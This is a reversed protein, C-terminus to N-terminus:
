SRKPIPVLHLVGDVGAVLVRQGMLWAARALPEGVDGVALEEGTDAAIRAVKGSRFLLLFDGECPMPPGALAGHKLALQWRLKQGPEFAYLSTSDAVFVLGQVSAPGLRCGGTLPWNTGAALTDPRMATVTEGSGGKVVAYLTDGTAALPSTITGPATGEAQQALHPQPADKVGIRFLRQGDSVVASAGDPPLATGPIWRLQSGAMLEPQFPLMKEQGSEPDILLVRGSQVGVLVGGQYAVTGGSAQNKLAPVELWKARKSDAAVDYLLAQGGSAFGSCFWRGASLEAVDTLNWVGTGRPPTETPKDLVGAVISDRPVEFVRGTATIASLEAREDSAGVAIVPNNLQTVWLTKGDAAQCAEVYITAANPRRRVHLLVNGTIQLPAIFADDQHLTWGRSLQQVSGQIEYMSARRGAIWLRRGDTAPYFLVPQAETANVGGVERVPQKDSASDIEYVAVQGLDTVVAVRRGSAVVPAAVRGHLRFPDGIEKLEGKESAGFVHLLTYDDKPSEPVLLHELAVVPPSLIAGASHGLYYTEDCQLTDGNFVFITSHEGLQYVRNRKPDLCPGVTPKQPLQAQRAIAGSAADIELLRGASTTVLVKGDHLIPPFFAEGLPQRWVLKGSDGALCVLSQARADSVLVNADAQKGLALPPITTENGVYRRWQVRGTTADLAYVAGQVLTFFRQGAVGPANSGERAALVVRYGTPQPDDTLAATNPETVQVLERERDAIARVATALKESTM